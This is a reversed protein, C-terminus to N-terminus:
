LGNPTAPDGRKLMKRNVNGAKAARDAHERWLAIRDDDPVRARWLSDSRQATKDGILRNTHM